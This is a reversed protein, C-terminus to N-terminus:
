KRAAKIAADIAKGAVQSVVQGTTVPASSQQAINRVTADSRLGGATTGFFFGLAGRFESILAGVLLLALQSEPIGKLFLFALAAAFLFALVITLVAPMNATWGGTQVEVIHMARANQRDEIELRLAALVDPGKAAEVSRVVAEPNPSAEIATKVAEPTPTTGLAEALAGVAVSAIAGVPGGVATALIPAGYKTLIEALKDM